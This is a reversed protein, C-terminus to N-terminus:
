HTRGPLRDLYFTDTQLVSQDLDRDLQKMDRWAVISHHDAVATNTGDEFATYEVRYTGDGKDTIYTETNTGSPSILRVRM